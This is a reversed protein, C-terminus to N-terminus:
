LDDNMMLLKQTTHSNKQEMRFIKISDNKKKLKRRGWKDFGGMLSRM